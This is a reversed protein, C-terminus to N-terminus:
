IGYEDMQREYYDLLLSFYSRELVGDYVTSSRTINATIIVDSRKGRPLGTEDPQAGFVKEVPKRLGHVHLVTNSIKRTTSTGETREADFRRLAIIWVSIHVIDSGVVM